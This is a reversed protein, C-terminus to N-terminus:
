LSVERWPGGYRAMAEGDLAIGLGPAGILRMAGREVAPGASVLDDALLGLTALGHALGTDKLSAALHLAVATGVGSDITTTVIVGVGRALAVGAIRRATLPGGLTMPKLVLADAAGAQLAACAAQLGTVEEDLAIAVGCSRRLHATEVLHGPPLPQEVLELGCPRLSELFASAEALSWAGNADLRLRVDQGLARRVAAVRRAEAEQGPLDGVKLKLCSFGAARAVAAQRAAQLTPGSALANVPVVTEGRGGLLVAVPVGDRRALADLAATELACALPPPADPRELLGEVPQGLLAPALALLSEELAAVADASAAPHPSAEGLGEIGADTRLRVLLGKRQGM